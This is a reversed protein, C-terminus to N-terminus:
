ENFTSEISNDIYKKFNSSEIGDTIENVFSKLLIQKSKELGIGRSRLYFLADEDLNGITSGHACKVDDCSIKLKPNSNIKANESLIINHNKQDSNIQNSDKPVNVLGNFISNSNDDLIGKYLVNSFTHASNHNVIINNDIFENEKAFFLGDLRSYANAKNLNNIINTRIFGSNIYFSKSNVKSNSDQNISINNMSYSNSSEDFVNYLSISSNEKVNIDINSNKYYKSQNDLCVYHFYVCSNSDKESNIIIKNFASSYDKNKNDSIMRIQVKDFKKDLDLYVGNKFNANNLILFPNNEIDNRNHTLLSDFFINDCDKLKDSLLSCNKNKPYSIIKGNYITICPIDLNFSFSHKIDNEKNEINIFDLSKFKKLSTYRWFENKSSPYGVKNFKEKAQKNIDAISFM